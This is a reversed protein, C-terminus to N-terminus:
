RYWGLARTLAALVSLGALAAAAIAGLAFGAGPVVMAAAHLAGAGLGGVGIAIAASAIFARGGLSFTVLGFGVGAAASTLGHGLDAGLGDLAPVAVLGGGILVAAAAVVAGAPAPLRLRLLYPVFAAAGCLGFNLGLVAYRERLLTASLHLDAWAFVALSAAVLAMMEAGSLSPPRGAQRLRPAGATSLIALVAAMAGLTAFAARRGEAEALLAGIVPGIAAAALLVLAGRWPRRRGAGAAQLVTWVALWGTFSAFTTVATFVRYDRVFYVMGFAVASLMLATFTVPKSWRGGLM